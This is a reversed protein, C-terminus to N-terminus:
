LRLLLGSLLLTGRVLPARGGAAHSAQKDHLLSMEAAITVGASFFEFGKPM